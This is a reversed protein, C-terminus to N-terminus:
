LKTLIKSYYNKRQTRMSLILLLQLRHFYNMNKLAHHIRRRRISLFMDRIKEGHNPMQGANIVGYKRFITERGKKNLNDARERTKQRAKPSVLAGYKEKMTSLRNIQFEKSQLTGEGFQEKYQSSTMSHSKLHTSTILSKFEKNCIKCHITM